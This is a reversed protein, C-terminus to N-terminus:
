RDVATIQGVVLDVVPARRTIEEGEAQAVCGAVTVITDKGATRRQEKIERIKSIAEKEKKWHGAMGEKEAKLETLEKELKELTAQLSSKGSAKKAPKAAPGQALLSTAFALLLVLTAVPRVFPM